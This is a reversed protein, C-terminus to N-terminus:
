LDTRLPRSDSRPLGHRRCAVRFRKEILQAYPGEGRLRAGYRPDNDRGGRMARILSMVHAARQPYHAELWARCLTKVAFPLRLMVYGAREAGAEAAAAVIQEIEHDTIAPIVPAIMVGTPVGAASLGRVVKLRAEPGAAR